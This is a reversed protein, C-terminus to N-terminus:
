VLFNFIFIYMKFAWPVWLSSYFFFFRYTTSLVQRHQISSTFINHDPMQCVYFEHIVFEQGCTSQKATTVTINVHRFFVSKRPFSWRSPPITNFRGPLRNYHKIVTRPGNHPNVVATLAPRHGYGYPICSRSRKGSLSTWVQTKISNPQSDGSRGSAGDDRTYAVLMVEVADQNDEQDGMM